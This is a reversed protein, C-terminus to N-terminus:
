EEVPAEPAEPEEVEPEVVKETAFEAKIDAVALEAIAFIASQHALGIGNYNLRIGEADEYSNCNGLYDNEATYFTGTMSVVVNDANLRLHGVFRYGENITEFEINIAKNKFETAM